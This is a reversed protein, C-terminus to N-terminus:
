PGGSIFISGLNTFHCAVSSGPPSYVADTMGGTLVIWGAEIALGRKALENAALALAEGPHGQVAAGTASDVIVGDVEVLVAELALDLDVPPLGV